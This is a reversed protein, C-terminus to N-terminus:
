INKETVTLRAGFRKLNLPGFTKHTSLSKGM